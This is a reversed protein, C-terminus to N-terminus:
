SSRGAVGFSKRIMVTSWPVTSETVALVAETGYLITAQSEAEPGILFGPEDVLSVIPINFTNGKTEWFIEHSDLSQYYGSSNSKQNVSSGRILM